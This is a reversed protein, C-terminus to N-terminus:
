INIGTSICTNSSVKCTAAWSNLCGIRVSCFGIDSLSEGFCLTTVDNIYSASRRTKVEVCAVVKLKGGRTVPGGKGKGVKSRSSLTLCTRNKNDIASGM